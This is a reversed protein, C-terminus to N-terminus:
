HIYRDNEPMWVKRVEALPRDQLGSIESHTSAAMGAATMLAEMLDARSLNTAADFNVAARCAEALLFCDAPDLTLTVADHDFKVIKM